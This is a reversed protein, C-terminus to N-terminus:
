GQDAPLIRVAQERLVNTMYQRDSFTVVERSREDVGTELVAVHASFVMSPLLMLMTLVFTLMKM